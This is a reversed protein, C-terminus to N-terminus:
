FRFNKAPMKMRLTSHINAACDGGGHTSGLRVIEVRLAERGRGVWAVYRGLGECYKHRIVTYKKPTPIYMNKGRRFNGMGDNKIADRCGGAVLFDTARLLVEGMPRWVLGKPLLGEGRTSAVATLKGPLSLTPVISMRNGIEGGSDTDM